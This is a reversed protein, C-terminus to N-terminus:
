CSIPNEGPNQYHNWLQIVDFLTIGGDNNCDGKEVYQGDQYSNWLQIVDFLTIRGDNNIDGCMQTEVTSANGNLYLGTGDTAEYAFSVREDCYCEEKGDNITADVNCADCETNPAVFSSTVLFDGNSGPVDPLDPYVFEKYFDPMTHIHKWKWGEEQGEDLIQVLNTHFRTEIWKGTFYIDLAPVDSIRREEIAYNLYNDGEYWNCGEHMTHPVDVDDIMDHNRNFPPLLPLYKEGDDISLKTVSLDELEVDDHEPIPNRITIYKLTDEQPGYIMAVDYEAADVFFTEGTHVLRGVDIIAKDGATSAGAQIEVYWPSVFDAPTNEKAQHRGANAMEGTKLIVSDIKEPGKNGTYYIDMAVSQDSFQLGTIKVMHDLFQIEDGKSVTLDQASINVDKRGDGNYDGVDMLTTMDDMGDGDVDFGDLGIQDDNDAVPFYFKTPTVWDEAYTPDYHKDLFMYTYETVVDEWVYKNPDELWVKGTPETYEPVFWQRAFVKQKSDVNSVVIRDDMTKEDMVAPNFTVFDKRPAEHSQPNFPAEPDNYPFAASKDEEGYLRLRNSDTYDNVYIDKCEDDQDFAMMVRECCANPARWSSTLLFDGRTNEDADPLSPYVFEKYFDPMTHIHKWEWWEEGEYEKLIEALNTHFREETDKGTFYIYLPEVGDIRREKATDYDSHLGVGDDVMPDECDPHKNHPIGIDDIMSHEKNFPPLLPLMENDDVMMKTVSLDELEVDKHEPVPNRITIYKLYPSDCGGPGYIMAMYYEAADVFFSEDTHLLRGVEIKATDGATSAAADLKVWWPNVFNSAQGEYAAHRGASAMDTGASLTISDIKEPEKNGTYYVDMGISQINGGETVFQLETVKVMHDLFQIEDGKSVTLDEAAINVDKRGDGNYDGVDKLITMDDMGDGDVDFGDLGIQDANDAVPFYFKTPTVNDDAYTPDYHKDLFMYTYETVVDEWVYKNPDELWVKGTPETYEPVFWQRAFVKQKSDVNSVVIRDDMNTEDMVAPNFTMFDKEPAEDSQPDFPAEPDTYPTAAGKGDEGYLRVKCNDDAPPPTSTPTPTPVPCDVAVNITGVDTGSGEEGQDFEIELTSSAQPCDDEMTVYTTTTSWSAGQSYLQINTGIEKQTGNPFTQYVHFVDLNTGPNGDAGGDDTNTISITYTITEGATYTTKDTSFTKDFQYASVATTALLLVAFVLIMTKAIEFSKKMSKEKKM